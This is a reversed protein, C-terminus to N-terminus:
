ELANLTMFKLFDFSLRKNDMSSHANKGHMLQNVKPLELLYDIPVSYTLIFIETFLYRL